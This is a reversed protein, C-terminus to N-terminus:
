GIWYIFLYIFLYVLHGAARHVRVDFSRKSSICFGSLGDGGIAIFTLTVFGLLLFILLISAVEPIEM